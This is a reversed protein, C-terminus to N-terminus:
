YNGGYSSCFIVNKVPVFDNSTEMQLQKTFPSFYYFGIWPYISIRTRHSGYISLHSALFWEPALAESKLALIIHGHFLSHKTYYIDFEVNVRQAQLEYLMSRM